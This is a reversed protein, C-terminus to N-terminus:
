VVFVDNLTVTQLNRSTLIQDLKGFVETVGGVFNFHGIVVRQPLFYQDALAVVEAPSKQAADGLTGFWMIPRTYGVAAAAADTRADRHGYPPRYYPRMDVGYLSQMLQHTSMLEEQIQGDSSATFSPHNMTHNALQIQGREVLPALQDVINPWVPYMGTVFFTLRRAHAKAYNVYARVAEESAGDDVTWAM